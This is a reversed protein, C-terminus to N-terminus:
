EAKVKKKKAKRFEELEETEDKTLFIPLAAECKKHKIAWCAECFYDKDKMETPNPNCFFCVSAGRPIQTDLDLKCKHCIM